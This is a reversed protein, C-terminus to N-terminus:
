DGIDMGTVGTRQPTSGHGGTASGTEGHSSKTVDRAGLDVADEVATTRGEEDDNADRAKGRVPKLDGTAGPTVRSIGLVEGTAASPEDETRDRRDDSTAM